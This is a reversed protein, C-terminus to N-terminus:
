FQTKDPFFLTGLPLPLQVYVYRHRIKLYGSQKTLSLLLTSRVLTLVFWSIEFPSCTLRLSYRVYVFEFVMAYIIVISSM